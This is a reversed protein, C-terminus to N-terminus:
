HIRHPALQIAELQMGTMMVMGPYRDEGTATFEFEYVRQLWWGGRPSRRPRVRRLVVTEDLLQVDLERCYSRVATLARERVGHGRWWWLLLVALGGWLLVDFLTLHM